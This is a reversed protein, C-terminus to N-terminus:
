DIIKFKSFLNFHFYTFEKMIRKKLSISFGEKGIATNKFITGLFKQTSKGEENPYLRKVPCAFGEKTPRRDRQHGKPIPDEKRREMQPFRAKKREEKNSCL